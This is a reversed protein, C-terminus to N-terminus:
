KNFSSDKRWQIDKGGKDYILHGYPCPNIEPSSFSKKFSSLGNWSEKLLGEQTEYM